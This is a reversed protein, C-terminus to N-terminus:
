SQQTLGVYDPDFIEIVREGSDPCLFMGSTEGLFPILEKDEM